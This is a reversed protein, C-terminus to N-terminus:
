DDEKWGRRGIREDNGGEKEKVKPCSSAAVVGRGRKPVCARQGGHVLPMGTGRELSIFPVMTLLEHKELVNSWDSYNNGNKNSNNGGVRKSRSDYGCYVWNVKCWGIKRVRLMKSPDERNMPYFKGQDCCANDGSTGDLSHVSAFNGQDPLFHGEMMKADENKESTTTTTANANNNNNNRLIKEYVDSFQRMHILPNLRHACLINGKELQASLDPIAEPRIHLILDPETFYIHEWRSPHEGLWLTIEHQQQHYQHQHRNHRKTISASSTTNSTDYWRRYVVQFRVMAEMPVNVKGSKKKKTVEDDGAIIPVYELEMDRKNLHGKLMEKTRIASLRTSNNVGVIIARRIGINWLSAITAAIQLTAMRFNYTGEESSVHHPLIAITSSAASLQSQANNDDDSDSSVLERQHCSVKSREVYQEIIEAVRRQIALVTNDNDDDDDGRVGWSEFHKVFKSLHEVSMDLWDVTALVENANGFSKFTIAERNSVQSYNTRLM